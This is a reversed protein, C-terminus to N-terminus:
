QRVTLLDMRSAAPASATSVTVNSIVRAPSSGSIRTGGSKRFPRAAAGSACSPQSSMVGMARRSQIKEILEALCGSVRRRRMSFAHSMSAEPFRRNHQKGPMFHIIFSFAFDHPIHSENGLECFRRKGFDGFYFVAFTELLERLFGPGSRGVM